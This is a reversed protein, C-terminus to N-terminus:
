RLNPRKWGKEQCIQDFLYMQISKKQITQLSPHKNVFKDLGEKECLRDFVIVHNIFNKRPKDKKDSEDMTNESEKTVALKKGRLLQQQELTMTPLPNANLFTRYQFRQSYYASLNNKKLTEKMEQSHMAEKEPLLHKRAETKLFKL